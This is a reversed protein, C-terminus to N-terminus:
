LSINFKTAIQVEDLEWGKFLFSEKLQLNQLVASFIWCVSHAVRTNFHITAYTIM